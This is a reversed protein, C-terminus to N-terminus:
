PPHALRPIPELRLPRPMIAAVPLHFPAFARPLQDFQAPEDSFSTQNLHGLVITGRDQAQQQLSCRPQTIAIAFMNQRQPPPTASARELVTDSSSSKLKVKLTASM